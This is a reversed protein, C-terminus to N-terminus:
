FLSWNHHSIKPFEPFLAIYGWSTIMNFDCTIEHLELLHINTSPPKMGSGTITSDSFTYIPWRMSALHCLSWSTTIWVCNWWPTTRASSRSPNSERETWNTTPSTSTSSVLTWTPLSTAQPSPSLKFHTITKIHYNSIFASPSALKQQLYLLPRFM